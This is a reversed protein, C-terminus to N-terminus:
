RWLFSSFKRCALPSFSFKISMRKLMPAASRTNPGPPMRTLDCPVASIFTPMFDLPVFFGVKGSRDRLWVKKLKSLLTCSLM